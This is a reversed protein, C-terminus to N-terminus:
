VKCGTLDLLKHEDALFIDYYLDDYRLIDKTSNCMPLSDVTHDIWPSDCGTRKAVSEKVCHGYNYGPDSNCEFKGKRDMRKKTVAKLKYGKKSPRILTLSPVFFNDTKLLFFSPDHLFVTFDEKLTVLFSTEKDIPERYVLTHCMGMFSSTISSNWLKPDIHKYNWSSSPTQPALVVYEVDVTEELSFTKEEVCNKLEELNTGVGCIMDLGHVM